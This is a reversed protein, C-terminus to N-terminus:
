CVEGLGCLLAFAPKNVTGGLQLNENLVAHDKAPVTAVVSESSANIPVEVAVDVDM